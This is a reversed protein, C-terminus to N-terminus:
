KQQEDVNIGLGCSAGSTDITLSYLNDKLTIGM